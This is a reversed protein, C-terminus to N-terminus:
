VDCDGVGVVEGLRWFRALVVVEAPLFEGLVAFVVLDSFSFVLGGAFLPLSLCSLVTLFPLVFGSRVLVWFWAFGGDVGL